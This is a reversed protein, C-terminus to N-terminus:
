EPIKGEGSYPLFYKNALYITHEFLEEDELNIKGAAVQAAILTTAYNLSSQRLISAQRDDGSAQPNSQHGKGRELVKFKSSDFNLYGKDNEEVVTKIKDGPNALAPGKVFASYKKGDPTKISHLKAGGKFERDGIDYYQVITEIVQAM